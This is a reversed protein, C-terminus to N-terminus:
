HHKPNTIITDILNSLKYSLRRKKLLFRQDNEGEGCEGARPEKARTLTGVTFKCGSNRTSQPFNQVIWGESTSNGQAMITTATSGATLSWVETEISVLQPQTMALELSDRTVMRALFGVGSTTSFDTM